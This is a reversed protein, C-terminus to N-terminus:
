EDGVKAGSSGDAKLVDGVAGSTSTAAETSGGIPTSNIQADGSTRGLPTNGDFSGNGNISAPPQTQAPNTPLPPVTARGSGNADTNLPVASGSTNPRGNVDSRTDTQSNPQLYQPSSIESAQVVSGCGCGSSSATVVQSGSIQQGGYSPGTQYVNSGAVTYDSSQLPIRYSQVTQSPYAYGNPSIYGTSNPQAYVHSSYSNSPYYTRVSANSLTRVGAVNGAIRANRNFLRGRGIEFAETVSTLSAGGILLAGIYKSLFQMKM